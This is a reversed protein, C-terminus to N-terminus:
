PNARRWYRRVRARGQHPQYRPDPTVWGSGYHRKLYERAPHPVRWSRGLYEIAETTELIAAPYVLCYDSRSSPCYRSAGNKLYGAIDAKIGRKSVVIARPASYPASIIRWSFGAAAFAAALAECRHSLDEILCGIDIDVDYAILRGDRVVGLCTGLSLFFPVGCADLTQGIETLTREAAEINM